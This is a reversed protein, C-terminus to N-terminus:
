SEKKGTFSLGAITLFLEEQTFEFPLLLLAARVANYRNTQLALKM